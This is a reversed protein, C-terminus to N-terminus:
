GNIGFSCTAGATISAWSKDTGVQVPILRDTTTGDGLQGQSNNGWAWLAGDRIEVTYMQGTALRQYNACHAVSKKTNGRNVQASAGIFNVLLLGIIIIKSRNANKL